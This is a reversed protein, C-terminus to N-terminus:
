QGRSAGYVRNIAETARAWCCTLASEIHDRDERVTYEGVWRDGLLPIDYTAHSGQQTIRAPHQKEVNFLFSIPGFREYSRVHVSEGDVGLAYQESLLYLTIGFLTIRVDNAAVGGSVRIQIRM